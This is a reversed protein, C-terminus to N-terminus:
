QTKKANVKEMFRDVSIVAREHTGSGIVGCEDRAEVKFTLFRGNDSIGTLETHISVKMGEPTAATHHVDLYTGVTAQGEALHPMVSRMATGEMQAIMVPTAFVAVTGSGAASALMDKTVIFSHDGILGVKMYIGKHKKCILM